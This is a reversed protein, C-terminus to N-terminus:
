YACFVARAARKDRRAKDRARALDCEAFDGSGRVPRNHRALPDRAGNAVAHASLTVGNRSITVM